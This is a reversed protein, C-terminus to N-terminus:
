PRHRFLVSGGPKVFQLFDHCLHRSVSGFSRSSVFLRFRSFLSEKRTFVSLRAHFIRRTRCPVRRALDAFPKGSDHCVFSMSAGEPVPVSTSENPRAAAAGGLTELFDTDFAAEWPGHDRPGPARHSPFRGGVSWSEVAVPPGDKAVTVVPERPGAASQAAAVPLLTLLAVASCLM